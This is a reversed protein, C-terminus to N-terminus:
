LPSRHRLDFSSVLSFKQSIVSRLHILLNLNLDREPGNFTQPPQDLILLQVETEVSVWKWTGLTWFYRLNRLHKLHRVNGFARFEDRHRKRTKWNMAAEMVSVGTNMETSSFYAAKSHSEQQALIRVATYYFVKKSNKKAYICFFMM